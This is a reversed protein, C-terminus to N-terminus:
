NHENGLEDATEMPLNSIQEDRGSLAASRTFDPIRNRGFEEQGVAKRRRGRTKMKRSRQVVVVLDVSDQSV